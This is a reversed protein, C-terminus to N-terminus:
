GLDSHVKHHLNEMLADCLRPSETLHAIHYSLVLINETSLIQLIRGQASNKIEWCGLDAYAYYRPIHVRCRIGGRHVDVGEQWFHWIPIAMGAILVLFRPDFLALSMGSGWITVGVLLIMPLSWLSVLYVRYPQILRHQSLPVDPVSPSPSNM